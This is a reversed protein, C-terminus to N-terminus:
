ESEKNDDDAWYKIRENPFLQNYIYAFQEAQKDSLNEVNVSSLTDLADRLSFGFIDWRRKMYRFIWSEAVYYYDQDTFDNRVGRSVGNASQFLAYVINQVSRINNYNTAWFYGHSDQKNTAYIIRPIRLIQLIQENEQDISLSDDGPISLWAHRYRAFGLTLNDMKKALMKIFIASIAPNVSSINRGRNQSLIQRSLVEITLDYASKLRVSRESPLYKDVFIAPEIIGIKGLAKQVTEIDAPIIIRAFALRRITSLLSLIVEIDEGRLRDLDDIIIFIKNSLETNEYKANIDAILGSTLTNVEKKSRLVNLTTKGINTDLNEAIEYIQRPVKIGLEEMTESLTALFDKIFEGNKIQYKFVSEYIYRNKYKGSVENIAMLLNTTKGAGWKANIVLTGAIQGSLYNRIPEVNSDIFVDIMQSESRPVKKKGYIRAKLINRDIAPERNDQSSMIYRIYKEDRMILKKCYVSRAKILITLCVFVAFVTTAVYYSCYSAVDYDLIGPNLAILTSRLADSIDYFFLISSAFCFLVCLFLLLFRGLKFTYRYNYPKEPM